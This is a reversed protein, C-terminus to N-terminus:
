FLDEFPEFKVNKSDFILTNTATPKFFLSFMQSRQQSAIGAIGEALRNIPNGWDSSQGQPTQEGMPLTNDPSIHNAMNEQQSFQQSLPDNQTQIRGTLYEPFSNHPANYGTVVHHIFNTNLLM